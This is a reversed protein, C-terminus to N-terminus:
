KRQFSRKWNESEASSIAEKYSQPFPSSVRYSYDVNSMCQAEDLDTVYDGLHKPRRRERESQSTACTLQAYKIISPATERYDKADSM